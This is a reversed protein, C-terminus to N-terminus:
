CWYFDSKEDACNELANAFAEMLALLDSVAEDITVNEVSFGMIRAKM